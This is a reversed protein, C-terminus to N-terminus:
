DGEVGSGSLLYGGLNLPIVALVKREREKMLEREKAPADKRRGSAFPHSLGDEEPARRTRTGRAACCSRTGCGFGATWRNTFTMGRCCRSRMWGAGSVAGRCRMMCGRTGWGKGEKPFPHSFGVGV